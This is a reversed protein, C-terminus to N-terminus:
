NENSLSNQKERRVREGSIANRSGDHLLEKIGKQSLLIIKKM